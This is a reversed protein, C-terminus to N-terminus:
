LLTCGIVQTKRNRLSLKWHYLTSSCLKFNHILPISIKDHHDVNHCNLSLEFEISSDMDEFYYGLHIYIILKLSFMTDATVSLFTLKLANCEEHKHWKPSM